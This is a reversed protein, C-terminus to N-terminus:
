GLLHKVVMDLCEMIWTHSVMDYANKYDIWAIALNTKRSSCDKLVAKDIFLHDKTGRSREKCSKQEEPFLQQHDMHRYLAEALMSTLLKYMVPLCAIPRLIAISGKKVDKMILVTRAETM